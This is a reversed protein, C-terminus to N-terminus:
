RVRAGGRVRARDRRDAYHLHAGDFGREAFAALAASTIQSM